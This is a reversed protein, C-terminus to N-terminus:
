TIGPLLDWHSRGSAWLRSKRERWPRNRSWRLQEPRVRLEYAASGTGRMAQTWIELRRPKPALGPLGLDGPLSRNEPERWPHVPAQRGSIPWGFAFLGRVQHALGGTGPWIILFRGRDRAM